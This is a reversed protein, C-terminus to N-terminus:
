PNKQFRNDTGVFHTLQFAGLIRSAIQPSYRQRIENTNLNTSIITPRGAMMRGNILTYLATQTFQTTMETGLDDLIMLDCRDYKETLGLQGNFKEVEYDTVVKGVTEYCVSHGGDAVTRAIAASLFTKGLGTGGFFLMSPSKPNFTMAYKHCKDLVMTMINRPSNKLLNDQEPSYYSLKFGDFSEKQLKLVASLEKKQEQRCLEGLCECMVAGIYGTGKCHPCIPLQELDTPDISESELIWQREEQLALNEQRIASIAEEVNDGMAMTATMIKTVTLRLQRDIEELRPYAQYITAIRGDTEQQYMERADALRRRARSLVEKSYGM